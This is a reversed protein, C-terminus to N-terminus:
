LIGVDDVVMGTKFHLPLKNGEPKSFKLDEPDSTQSKATGCAGVGMSRLESLLLETTFYNDMAINWAKTRHKKHLRRVMHLVMRGTNSLGPVLFVEKDVPDLGLANSSMHFDYVYGLFALCFIKYGQEIPKNPMKTIDSSRGTFRVMAEDFTMNKGPLRYNQAATKIQQLLPDVKAHWAKKGTIPDIKEGGGPPSIHFYRKIDKYRTQTM